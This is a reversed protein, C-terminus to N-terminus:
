LRPHRGTERMGIKNYKWVQELNGKMNPRTNRVEGKGLLMELSQVVGFGKMSLVQVIQESKLHKVSTWAAYQSPIIHVDTSVQITSM